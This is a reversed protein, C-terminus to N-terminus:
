QQEERPITIIVVTGRDPASDIDLRAHAYYELRKRVNQIGVNARNTPKSTDFGVGDDRINIYINEKDRWTKLVITGGEAKERLGHKISNEVIPQLILTPLTFDSFQVDEKYKIRDDGFRIQELAIYDKMLSLSTTFKVPKDEQLIDINARLYRSFRVITEDAKEPDYKCMGSIANLVNFVFHARIQGLALTIHSQKLESKLKEASIVDLYREPILKVTRIVYLTFLFTFVFRFISRNPTGGLYLRIIDVMIAILTISLSLLASYNSSKKILIENLCCTLLIPFIFINIFIFGSIADYIVMDRSLGTLLVLVIVVTEAVICNSVVKKTRGTMCRSMFVIMELVGMMISICLAYTNLARNRSWLSIDPLDLYIYRGSFVSFLAFSIYKLSENKDVVFIAIAAGLLILSVFMILIGVYRFIRAVYGINARLINEEVDYISSIFRNFAYTNGFKHPNRLHIEIYDETTIGPSSIVEWSSGCESLSAKGWSGTRSIEKGNVSIAVAIHDSLYRIDKGEPIDKEFHGRIYMDGRLANKKQDSDIDNWKEGDYSYEGKIGIPYIAPMKEPKYAISVLIIMIISLVFPIVPVIQGREFKRKEM